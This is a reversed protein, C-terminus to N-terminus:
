PAVVHHMVANYLAAHSVRAINNAPFYTCQTSGIEVQVNYLVRVLFTRCTRVM